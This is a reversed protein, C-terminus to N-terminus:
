TRSGPPQKEGMENLKWEREAKASLQSRAAERRLKRARVLQQRLQPAKPCRNQEARRESLRQHGGSTGHHRLKEPSGAPEQKRPDGHLMTQTTKLDGSEEEPQRAGALEELSTIMGIIISRLELTGMPDM